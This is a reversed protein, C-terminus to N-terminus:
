KAQIIIFGEVGHVRLVYYGEETPTFKITTTGAKSVPSKEVPLSNVFDNYRFTEYNFIENGFLSKRESEHSTKIVLVNANADNLNAYIVVIQGISTKIVDDKNVALKNQELVFYLGNDKPEIQQFKIETTKDSKVFKGKELVVDWIPSYKNNKEKVFAEVEKLSFEQTKNNENLLTVSKGIEQCVIFGSYEKKTNKLILKDIYFSQEAFTQSENIKEKALSKINSYPYSRGNDMRVDRGPRIEIIFGRIVEDDKLTVVDMVGSLLTEAPTEKEIYNIDSWNLDCMNEGSAFTVTKGPVQKAIYGKLSGGDNLYVTEEQQANLCFGCLVFFLSLYIKRKM